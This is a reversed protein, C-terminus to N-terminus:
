VYKLLGVAAALSFVAGLIFAAASGALGWVVGALLSAPFLGIGVLASHLGIFTARGQSPALDSVFAKEVGETLGAYVGYVGFLVWIFSFSKTLAFGLYVLAYFLHGLVLLSKRGIRDSIIGAPYSSLAYCINYVLYLLIVVKIDFGMSKARLLLFMNSSNALSFLFAIILFARLRRDLSRFGAILGKLSLREKKEPGAGAEFSYFRRGPDEKVFFLVIIGIAAPILAWFFMRRYGAGPYAFFLYAFFIGVVAGLTDMARHLGFCRGRDKKAALDAILADRPATRVGKGFRDLIRACFVGGWSVSLYLLFKGLFSFGYGLVAIPRRKNIRDSWYGCFVKLLSALSEATGEILGLLAPAAGLKVTLFLPLLPYVMESSVDTFFSVLGLLVISLM